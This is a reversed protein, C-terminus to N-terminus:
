RDVSEMQSDDKDRDIPGASSIVKAGRASQILAPPNLVVAELLYLVCLNVCESCNQASQSSHHTPILHSTGASTTSSRPQITRHCTHSIVSYRIM